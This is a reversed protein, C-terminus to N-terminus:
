LTKRPMPISACFKEQFEVIKEHHVFSLIGLIYPRHNAVYKLCLNDRSLFLGPVM